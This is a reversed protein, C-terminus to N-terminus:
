EHELIRDVSYLSVEGFQKDPNKEGLVVPYGFLKERPGVLIWNVKNEKLFIGSEDNAM